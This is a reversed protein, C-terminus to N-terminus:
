ACNTGVCFAKPTPPIPSNENEDIAAARGAEFNQTILYSITAEIPALTKAPLTPNPLPM